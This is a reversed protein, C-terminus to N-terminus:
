SLLLLFLGMEMIMYSRFYLLFPWFSSSNLMRFVVLFKVSSCASGMPIVLCLTSAFPVMM